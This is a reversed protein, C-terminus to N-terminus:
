ITKRSFRRCRRRSSRLRLIFFMFLILLCFRPSFVFFDIRGRADDCAGGFYIKLPKKKKVSGACGCDVKEAWLDVLIRRDVSRRKREVSDRALGSFKALNSQLLTRSLACATSQLM